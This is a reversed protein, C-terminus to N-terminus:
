WGSIIQVREGGRSKQMKGGRRRDPTFVGIERVERRSKGECGRERDSSQGSYRFPVGVGGASKVRSEYISWDV